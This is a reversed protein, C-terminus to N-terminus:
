PKRINTGPRLNHSKAWRFDAAMEAVIRDLDTENLTTKAFCRCIQNRHQTNFKLMDDATPTRDFCVVDRISGLEDVFILTYESSAMRELIETKQM